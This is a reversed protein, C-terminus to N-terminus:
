KQVTNAGGSFHGLVNGIIYKATQKTM